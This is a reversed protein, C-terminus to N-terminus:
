KTVEKRKGELFDELESLKFRVVNGNKYKKIYGERAWNDITAVCAGAINAAENRTIYRDQKEESFHEKLLTPLTKHKLDILLSELNSLRQDIVLFPNQIQM